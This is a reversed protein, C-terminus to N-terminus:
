RDHLQEKIKNWWEDNVVMAFAVIAYIWHVIPYFMYLLSTMVRKKSVKLQEARILEHMEEDSEVKLFLAYMCVIYAFVGLFYIKLLM